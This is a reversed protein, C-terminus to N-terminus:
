GSESRAHGRGSEEGDGRSPIVHPRRLEILTIEGTMGLRFPVLWFGTGTNVYLQSAGRRYWGMHYSLFVGALSWGLPRIGLQGGHTHAVLTLPLNLRRADEFAKPQHAILIPFRAGRGSLAADLNPRLRPVPAAYDSLGAVWLSRMEAGENVLLRIRSNRLAAIARDPDGYMEHNGLVALLPTHPDLFRTAELLKPTSWPDDDVLDGALIVIDPQLARTTEFFEQLRSRRTFLGVHLDALLAIRTGEAAPPLNDLEIPVREVRLPVIAEYLGDISGIITLSLFVRSPWRAFMAFSTRRFLLWVIAIAVVFGSYVIAFCTWAFWPPGFIARTIRGAATLTRLLPFFLWLLNGIIAVAITAKRRRPHVRLLTWIAIVNFPALVGLAILFFLRASYKRAIACKSMGSSRGCAPLIASRSSMM